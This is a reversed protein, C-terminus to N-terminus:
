FADVMITAPGLVDNGEYYRYKDEWEKELTQLQKILDSLLM